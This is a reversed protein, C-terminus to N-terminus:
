KNILIEYKKNILYKIFIRRNIKRRMPRRDHPAYEGEMREGPLVRAYVTETKLEM